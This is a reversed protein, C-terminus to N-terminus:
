TVVRTHKLNDPTVWAGKLACHRVQALIPCAHTPQIHRLALRNILISRNWALFISSHLGSTLDCGCKWMKYCHSPIQDKGHQFSRAQTELHSVFSLHQLRMEFDRHSQHPHRQFCQLSLKQKQKQFKRRLCHKQMRSIMVSSVDNGSLNHSM